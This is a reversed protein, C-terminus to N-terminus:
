PRDREVVAQEVGREAAVRRVLVVDRVDDDVVVVAMITITAGARVRDRAPERVVHDGVLQVVGDHEVAGARGDEQGRVVRHTHTQTDTDTDTDTDTHILTHTHTCISACLRSFVEEYVYVHMRGDWKTPYLAHPVVSDLKVLGLDRAELDKTEM